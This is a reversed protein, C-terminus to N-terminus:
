RCLSVKESRKLQLEPLSAAFAELSAVRVLRRKGLKVSQISGAGMLEYLLSRGCSLRRAAEPISILIAQDHM